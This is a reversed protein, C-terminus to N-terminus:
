WVRCFYSLLSVLALEYLLKLVWERAFKAHKVLVQLETKRTKFSPRVNKVQHVQTGGPSDCLIWNDATMLGPFDARVDHVWDATAM